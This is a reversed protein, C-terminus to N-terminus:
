YRIEFNKFGFIKSAQAKLGTIRALPPGVKCWNIYQKLRSERGETEIYVSGDPENRIFGFLGLKDATQKGYYRFSVGQVDGLIRINYHKIMGINHRMSFDDSKLYEQCFCLCM